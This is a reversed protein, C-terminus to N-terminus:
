PARSRRPSPSCVGAANATTTDTGTGTSTTWSLTVTAFAEATGIITVSDENRYTDIATLVPADPATYDNVEVTDSGGSGSATGDDPTVTCVWVDANSTDSAGVTDTTVSSATGNNTWGYTYSIVDGDDDTSASVVNCQLADDDEPYEPTIAVVPATPLSNQIERVGSTAPSGASTGDWPTVTVTLDDGKSFYTGALTADTAGSIDSGNRAWQYRYAEADGDSDSFGTPVATLTDNTYAVTPTITVSSVTPPANGIVIDDAGFPGTDFGDYPTVEVQWM